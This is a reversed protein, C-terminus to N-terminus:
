DKSGTQKIIVSYRSIFDDYDIPHDFDDTFDDIEVFRGDIRHELLDIGQMARYHEWGGCRKIDGNRYAAVIKHLSKHHEEQHEPYFSQAFCEGWSRGTFESNKERGFLTWERKDYDLITNMSEETFYVDGYLVITRETKSWLPKSNLFKDADYHDDNFQPRYLASGDLWYSADKAVIYPTINRERLLSVTRKLIPVGDVEVFHKEVGKYRNWRTGKGACIIIVSM